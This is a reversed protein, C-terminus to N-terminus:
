YNKCAKLWEDFFSKFNLDSIGPIGTNIENHIICNPVDEKTIKFPCYNCSKLSWKRKKGNIGKCVTSINNKIPNKFYLSLDEIMGKLIITKRNKM